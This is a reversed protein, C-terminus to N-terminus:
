GVRARMGLRQAPSPAVSRRKLDGRSLYKNAVYNQVQGSQGTNVIPRARTEAMWLAMPGDMKLNKGLKGPVWTVLQSILEQVGPSSVPDPLEILNDGSHVERGNGDNIRRTSGFLPAVSSVGFDPDVKNKSTYHPSFRVGRSSLFRRIEEDQTLFLQFANTEIVWEDVSYEETVQKITDRIYQPTPSTEVWCNMVRRMKSPRDVAMVLTFTDAAMAPDMSAIVYQGEMGSRPHGWSAANLPGAKRRRDCSGQVCLPKFTADDPIDQQQYVLSWTRAPVTGRVAELAPGDWAPFTGDEAEEDESEEDLKQTSRPWLTVWDESEGNAELVAPQALYTWSSKGTAFNQPNRLESYLDQSAVRTGVVLIKGNKVRSAVEQAVWRLQKEWEAANSLVICDDLIILDSRTGYLHGQVGIAQCTPDKQAGSRGRVYIRDAQWPEDPDRFEGAQSFDTQLASYEASTLMRKVSYLFTKAMERTKSVIVIKINPNQCIRYTVYEQSLLTSNHTPVLSRGILFVHSGNDVSICQTPVADVPVVSTIRRVDPGRHGASTRIRALKRALRFVPLGAPAFWVTWKPGCDRGQRTARGPKITPRLGLSSALTLVGQALDENTSTFSCQSANSVTGDTDMLGQLLALRQGRGAFLYGEPIHKEGRVGLESLARFLGPTEYTDAKSGNNSSLRPEFGAARFHALIELDATTFRGGAAHGDGLWAGLVYPDLPLNADPLMLEGHAPLNFRGGREFIQRTTLTAVTHRGTQVVWLHDESATFAEGDNIEVRFCPKDFIASKAVVRTPRGDLGFVDDGVRVAGVTTWGLPTPLLTGTGLAKAHFPPTNVLIRDPRAKEYTMAPHLGSPERGELLDIWMRQHPYTDRGLYNKRWTEFDYRPPFWDTAKRVARVHDARDAFARDESRWWQYTHVSREVAATAEAVTDGARLRELVLKKAEDVTYRKIKATM